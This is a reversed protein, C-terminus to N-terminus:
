CPLEKTIALLCGRMGEWTAGVRSQFERKWAPEEAEPDVGDEAIVVHVLKSAFRAFRGCLAEQFHLPKQLGTFSFPSEIVVAALCCTATPHRNCRGAQGVARM